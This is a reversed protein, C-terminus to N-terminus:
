KETGTYFYYYTGGCLSRNFVKAPLKDRIDISCDKIAVYNAYSAVDKEPRITVCDEEFNAILKNGKEIYVMIPLNRLYDLRVELDNQKNYKKNHTVEINVEKMTKEEPNKMM